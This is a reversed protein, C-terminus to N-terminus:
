DGDPLEASSVGSGVRPRNKFKRVEELASWAVAALMDITGSADFGDGNATAGVGTLRDRGQQSHFGAVAKNNFRNANM